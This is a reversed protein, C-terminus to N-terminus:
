AGEVIVDEGEREGPGAAAAERAAALVLARDAAAKFFVHSERGRTFEAAFRKSQERERQFAERREVEAQM